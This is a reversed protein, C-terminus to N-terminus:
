EAARAPAPPLIKTAEVPVLLRPARRRQRWSGVNAKLMLAAPTIVLTLVTAFTLGYVIATSLQTWWQTSPAGITIERGIFDINVQYMMPLLGLVTTVATLLVPRLRQACTRLIAERASAELPRLQDYTDILIINNKVVIGALAIVGIGTMVIGFPQGTIILGIIVGITSLVVASLILATSYFSNFQTLLILAILFLAAVFAKSLFAEAEAQEKDEGKFVVRIRSDLGAQALWERIETVKSDPLVDPLVDAKVTLAREGDVRQVIGVGPRAERTVFNSIPVLGGPTAIRIRDLEVISRFEDPYRAVIDIEDDSDDPRFEAFKQGRTVLQVANGVDTVDLGFKAAQARNVVVQWEVTPISRTDEIDVLGDMGEMHRRLAIVAPDLLEPQRASLQVQIAKGVPPGAEQQRPEVIIGALDATRARIDAVIEDAKRRKDWAAFELQITGIVDEALDNQSNGSAFAVAFVARFEGRERQLALIDDEVERVLADREDISLNGRAHIQLAASDPEVDPFFEVGNGHQAYYYWVGFLMAAAAIVIKASHSLARDLVRVYAGTFGGLRRLDGHESRAMAKAREPDAAGGAGGFVVGLAPVFILAMLLSAALTAMVTLPIFKMFEGVVGPWLMLPVYVALTTATSAIIPWAMRKAALRYAEFRGMGETMKRDAYEALVIAGDVVEGVALILSFLVVINMTLGVGSLVLIGVLFSGPIAVGVLGASRLGLSAVVIVMILVVASILNNELDTLMNRIDTSRDQSYVVEVQTPWNASETEVVARVREITEIINEGTRKSVELAVAPRGNIRAYSEADKFTRRLTGIDRVRVAADATAKLPMDLIDQATEFLGPIKIAFRGQGTDLTGAAVLRNSRGVLNAIDNANLGYSEARVPDIVIEVLEEREGAIRAQLVSDIAEIRDRLDRALRLLTRPPVEGALSVVLVPFLSLNVENVTPEDAEAPLEPKAIDVQNRVDELAQDADFGADFELTVSGGGQYATSRMEKVGEILKLEQEMPRLLLREADEPSVGELSLSVYIVPINVDPDSEKPMDRYALAGAVLALLLATLVTRVRSLAADIIANM